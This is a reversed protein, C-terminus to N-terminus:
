ENNIAKTAMNFNIVSRKHSSANFMAAVRSPPKPSTVYRAHNVDYAALHCHRWGRIGRGNVDLVQIFQENTRKTDDRRSYCSGYLAPAPTAAGM